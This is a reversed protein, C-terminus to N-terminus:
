VSTIFDIGTQEVRAIGCEGEDVATLVERERLSVRVRRVTEPADKAMRALVKWPSPSGSMAERARERM